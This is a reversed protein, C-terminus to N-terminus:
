QECRQCGVVRAFRPGTFRIEEGGVTPQGIPLDRELLV